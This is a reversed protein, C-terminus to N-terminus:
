VNRVTKNEFANKQAFNFQDSINQLYHLEDDMKAVNQSGTQMSVYIRDAHCAHVSRSFIPRLLIARM